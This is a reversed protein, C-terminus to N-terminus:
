GQTTATLICSVAGALALHSVPVDMTTLHIECVATWSHIGNDLLMLTRGRAPFVVIGVLAFAALGFM